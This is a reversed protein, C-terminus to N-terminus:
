RARRDCIPIVKLVTARTEGGRFTGGGPPTPLWPRTRARAGSEISTRSSACTAPGTTRSCASSRTPTSGRGSAPAASRALFDAGLVPRGRPARAAASRSRVVNLRYFLGQPLPDDVMAALDRHTASRGRLRGRRVRHGASRRVEKEPARAAAEGADRAPARGIRRPLAHRREGRPVPRATASRAPSPARRTGFLESRNDVRAARRLRGARVGRGRGAPRNIARAVVGQRHRERGEILVHSENLACARSRTRGLGACARPTGIVGPTRRAGELREELEATADCCGLAARAGEARTTRVAIYTTSRKALYVFAGRRFCRGRESATM